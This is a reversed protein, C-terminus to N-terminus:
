EWLARGLKAASPRCAWCHVASYDEDAAGIQPSCRLSGSPTIAHQTTNPM